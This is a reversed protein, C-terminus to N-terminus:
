HEQLKQKNTERADKWRIQVSDDKDRRGTIDNMEPVSTVKGIAYICGKYYVAHTVSCVFLLAIEGLMLELLPYTIGYTLWDKKWFQSELGTEEKGEHKRQGRPINTM